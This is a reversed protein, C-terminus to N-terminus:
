NKHTTTVWWQEQSPLIVPEDTGGTPGSSPTPVEMMRDPTPLTVGWLTMRSVELEYFNSYITTVRTPLSSMMTVDPTSRM